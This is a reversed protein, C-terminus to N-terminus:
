PAFFLSLIRILTCGVAWAAFLWAPIAPSVVEGATLIKGPVSTTLNDNAYAGEFGYVGDYMLQLGDMAYALLVGKQLAQPQLYNKYMYSNSSTIPLPANVARFIEFYKSWITEQAITGLRPTIGEINADWPPSPTQQFSEFTSQRPDLKATGLASLVQCRVGIPPAISIAPVNKPLMNAYTKNEVQTGVRQRYEFFTDNRVFTGNDGEVIPHPMGKIIPSLTSNFDLDYYDYEQNKQTQWLAFELIDAKPTDDPDFSNSENGYYTKRHMSVGLEMYAYLNYALHGSSQSSNCAYIYDGLPTTFGQGNFDPPNFYDLVMTSKQTLITFESADEVMSCNYGARLGWAEGSVPAEAQPALFMEPMGRSLPLSNPADELGSYDSRQIHKPTYIIGVGPIIPPFGMEWAKAAGEEYWIAQRSHFDSWTHGVVKPVTSVPVYGDSLELCLGSLPLAVYMIFSVFALMYWLFGEPAGQNSMLRKVCEMWGGPSSWTQETRVPEASGLAFKSWGLGFVGVLFWSYFIWTEHTIGYKVANDLPRALFYKWIFFYYGTVVFPVLLQVLTLIFRGLYSWFGRPQQRPPPTTPTGIPAYGSSSVISTPKPVPPSQVPLLPVGGSTRRWDQGSM